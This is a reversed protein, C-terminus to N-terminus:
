IVAIMTIIDFNESYYYDLNEDFNVWKTNGYWKKFAGNGSGYDLLNDSYVYKVTERYRKHALWNELLGYGRTPRM